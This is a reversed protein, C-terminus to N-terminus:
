SAQRDCFGDLEDRQRKSTHRLATTLDHEHMPLAVFSSLVVSGDPMSIVEIAGLSDELSRLDGSPPLAPLLRLDRVGILM